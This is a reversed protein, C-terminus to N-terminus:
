MKSRSVDFTLILSAVVAKPRLEIRRLHDSRTFALIHLLDSGEMKAYGLNVMMAGEEEEKLAYGAPDNSHECYTAM